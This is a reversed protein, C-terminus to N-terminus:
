PSFVSRCDGCSRRGPCGSAEPPSGGRSPSSLGLLRSWDRGSVSGEAVVEPPSGESGPQIREHAWGPSAGARRGRPPTSVVSSPSPRPRPPAPVEPGMPASRCARAAEWCLGKSGGRGLGRWRVALSPFWVCPSVLPQGRGSTRISRANNAVAPARMSQSATGCCLGPDGSGPAPPCFIGPVGFPGLCPPRCPSPLLSRLFGPM